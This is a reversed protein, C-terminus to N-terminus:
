IKGGIRLLIYLLRGFDSREIKASKIITVNWLESKSCHGFDLRNLESKLRETQNTQNM